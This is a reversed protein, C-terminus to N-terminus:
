FKYVTLSAPSSIVKMFIDITGPNIRDGLSVGVFLAAYFPLVSFLTFVMANVTYLNGLARIGYCFVLLVNIHAILVALPLIRMFSDGSDVYGTLLFQLISLRGTSLYNFAYILWLALLIPACCYSAAAFVKRLSAEIGFMRLFLLELFVFILLTFVVVMVLSVIAEPNYITMDYKVLQAVIPIFISLMLLALFSASYPPNEKNLLTETTNGPELMLGVLAESFTLEEQIKTQM